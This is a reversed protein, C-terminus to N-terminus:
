RTPEEDEVAEHMARLREQQKLSLKAHREALKRFADESSIGQLFFNAVDMLLAGTTIQCPHTILKTRVGPHTLHTVAPLGEPTEVVAILDANSIEKDCFCCRLDNPDLTKM